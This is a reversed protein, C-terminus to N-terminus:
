GDDNEGDEGGEDPLPIGMKRLWEEYPLDDDDMQEAEPVGNLQEIFKQIEKEAEPTLKGDQLHIVKRMIEEEVLPPAIYEGTSAVQVLIDLIELPSTGSPGVDVLHDIVRHVAKKLYVPHALEVVRKSLWIPDQIGRETM